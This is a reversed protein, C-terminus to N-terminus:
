IQFEKKNIRLALLVWDENSTNSASHILDGDFMFIENEKLFIKKNDITLVAGLPTKVNILINYMERDTHEEVESNPGIFFVGAYSLGDLETLMDNFINLESIINNNLEINFHGSGAPYKTDELVCESNSEHFVKNDKSTRSYWWIYTGKPDKTQQSLTEKISRWNVTQLHSTALVQINDVINFQPYSQYNLM